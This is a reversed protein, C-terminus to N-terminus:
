GRRGERVRCGMGEERGESQLGDWGGRGESPLGDGGGRGESPLGDGGGRGWRAVMEERRGGEKEKGGVGREKRVRGSM